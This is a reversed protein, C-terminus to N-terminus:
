VFIYTGPTAPAEPIDVIGVEGHYHSDHLSPMYHPYDLDMSSDTVESASANCSSTSTIENQFRQNFHSPPTNGAHTVAASSTRYLDGTLPLTNSSQSKLRHDSPKYSSSSNAGPIVVSASRQISTEQLLASSSHTQVRHELERQFAPDPTIGRPISTSRPLTSSASQPLAPNSREVEVGSDIENGNDDSVEPERKVSAPTSSELTTSSVARSSRQPLITSSGRELRSKTTPPSDEFSTTSTNRQGLDDTNRTHRKKDQPKPDIFTSVTIGGNTLTILPKDRRSVRHTHTHTHTHIHTHVHTHANHSATPSFHFITFKSLSM